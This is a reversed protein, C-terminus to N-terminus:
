SNEVTDPLKPELFKDTGVDLAGCIREYEDFELRRNGNLSMNLKPLAIGTKNSLFTQTIGHDTLYVKIKSGVCM